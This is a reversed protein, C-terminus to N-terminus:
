SRKRPATFLPLEAAFPGTGQFQAPPTESFTFPNAAGVKNADAFAQRRNEEVSRPTIAADKTAFTGNYQNLIKSVSDQIQAKEAAINIRDTIPAQAMAADLAALKDQAQSVINTIYGSRENDLKGKNLVRQRELDTQALGIKRQGQDYQNGVQNAQRRGIDGYARALAETASSNSANKNALLVGGSQLGHNVLDLISNMGQKKALENQYGSENLADQSKQTNYLYDNIDSLYNGYNVNAADNASSHITQDQSNFDSVLSDYASKGGWQAYPDSPTTTYGLTSGSGSSDSALGGSSQYTNVDLPSNYKYIDPSATNWDVSLGGSGLADTLNLADAM